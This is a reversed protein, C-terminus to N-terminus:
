KTGKSLMQKRIDANQEAAEQASVDPNKRVKVREVEDDAKKTATTKKATKKKPTM